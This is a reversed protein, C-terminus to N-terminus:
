GKAGDPISSNETEGGVFDGGIVQNYSDNDAEQAIDTATTEEVPLSIYWIFVGITAFWLGLVVLFAIFWRKSTAKLEHMLETALKLEQKELKKGGRRKSYLLKLLINFKQYAYIVM